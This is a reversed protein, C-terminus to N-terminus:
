DASLEIYGTGEVKKVALPFQVYTGYEESTIMRWPGSATGKEAVAALAKCFPVGWTVALDINQL